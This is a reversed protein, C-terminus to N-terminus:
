RFYNRYILVMTLKNQQQKREGGLKQINPIAPFLVLEFNLVPHKNQIIIIKKEWNDLYIM